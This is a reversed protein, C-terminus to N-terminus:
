AAGPLRVVAVHLERVPQLPAQEPLQAAGREIGLLVANRELAVQGYARVGAARTCSTAVHCGDCGPLEQERM